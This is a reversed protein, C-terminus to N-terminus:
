RSTMLCFVRKQDADNQQKDFFVIVFILNLFPRELKM